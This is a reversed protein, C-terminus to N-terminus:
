DNAHMEMDFRGPDRLQGNLQGLSIPASGARPKLSITLSKPDKLFALVVQGDQLRLNGGLITKSLSALAETRVTDTPKNQMKAGFELLKDVIGGNNFRLTASEFTMAMMAATRADAENSLIAKDVNGFVGKVKIAGLGAFSLTSDEITMKRATWDYSAKIDGSIDITDLGIATLGSTMIGSGPTFRIGGFAAAARKPLAGDYDVAAQLEGIEIDASETGQYRPVTLAGKMGGWVLTGYRWPEGKPLAGRLAAYAYGVDVDGLALAELKFNAVDAGNAKISLDGGGIRLEAAMGKQMHTVLIDRLILEGGPIALKVEPTAIKEVIIKNISERPGTATAGPSFLAVAEPASINAGELTLRQLHATMAGNPRYVLGDIAVSQGSFVAPRRMMQALSMGGTVVGYCVTAFAITGFAVIAKNRNSAAM